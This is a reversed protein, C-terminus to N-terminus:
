KKGSSKSDKTADKNTFTSATAKPKEKKEACCPKKADCDNKKEECCAKKADCNEKKDACCAKKADCNEKKEACCAKTADKSADAKKAVAEQKVPAKDQQNQASAWVTCVTVFLSVCVLTTFFRKM